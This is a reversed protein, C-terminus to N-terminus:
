IFYVKILKQFLMNLKGHKNIIYLFKRIAEDQTKKDRGFCFNSIHTHMGCSGTRVCSIGFAEAKEFMYKFDRYHNRIYAKTM